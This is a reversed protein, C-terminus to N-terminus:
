LAAERQGAKHRDMAEVFATLATRGADTIEFIFRSQASEVLYGLRELEEVNRQTLKTGVAYLPVREARRLIAAHTESIM